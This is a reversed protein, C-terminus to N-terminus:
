SGKLSIDYNQSGGTVKVSQGSKVPDQFNNPIPVYSSETELYKKGEETSKAADPITAGKPMFSGPPRVAPLVGVKLDGLPIEESKYTGDAGIPVHVTKKEGMFVVFGNAVPKDNYTVKGSLQGTPEGCGTVVLPLVLLAALLFFQKM